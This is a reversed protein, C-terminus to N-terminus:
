PSYSTSDNVSLFCWLTSSEAEKRHHLQMRFVYSGFVIYIIKM